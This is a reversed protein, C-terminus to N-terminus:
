STGGLIVVSTGGDGGQGPGSNVGGSGGGNITVPVSAGGCVPIAALCANCFSKLVGGAGGGGGYNGGGGGGAAVAIFDVTSTTSQLTHSGTSNIQTTLQAPKGAVTNVPGIIGGNAM